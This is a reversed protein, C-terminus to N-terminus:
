IDLSGDYGVLEYIRVPKRKGKVRIDDLERCIFASDDMIKNYTFESIILETRYTKNIAELRSALNVNDGMCTYNMRGLSGMNGVTCIGSNLGIGIQIRQHEPLQENLEKLLELQKLASKCALKAHEAQALPAGWFGMIADGIYKDLTGTYDMMCDTMSTLYQNLLAVLEQPSMSESLTTFSRIDSFFVTIDMDIGGLVPPEDMMKDVVMPNVYKGFMDKLHRKDSEEVVVRYVVVSIFTLIVAISPTAYNVLLNKTEFFVMDAVMFYGILYVFVALLSWGTNFRSTLFAVLLVVALLILYEIGEPLEMLFNDMIITNLANTHVEVGYMLGWPTTNEDFGQFFGGVMVIKNALAKTPPWLAPDEPPVRQAYGSFSRVPFTQVGGRGPNSRGGMFNILMRGQDDIPIKIEDLTRYEAEKVLIGQDDYIPAQTMIEYPVITQSDKDYVMPNEILIYEGLVVKIDDLTKHFYDAAL